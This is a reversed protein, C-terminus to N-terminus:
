FLGGREIAWAVPDKSGKEMNCTPCLLQVNSPEHTGGLKLPMIHDLHRGESLMRGCGRAACAGGQERMMREMDEASVESVFQDRKRARHVQVARATSAKRAPSKVRSRERARAEDPDSWYQRRKEERWRRRREEEGMRARHRRQYERQRALFVEPDSARRRAAGVRKLEAVRAASCSACRLRPRGRGVRVELAVGCGLCEM